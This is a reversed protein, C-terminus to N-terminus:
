RGPPAQSGPEGHRDYATWGGTVPATELFQRKQEPTGPSAHGSSKDQARATAAAAILALGAAAALLVQRRTVSKKM